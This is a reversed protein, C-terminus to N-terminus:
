ELEKCEELADEYEGAKLLLMCINRKVKATKKDNQGHNFEYIQEAHRLADL